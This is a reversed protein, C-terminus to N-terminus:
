NVIDIHKIEAVACQHRVRPGYSLVGLVRLNALIYMLVLESTNPVTSEHTYKYDREQDIRM